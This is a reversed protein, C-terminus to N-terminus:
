TEDPFDEANSWTMTTMNLIETKATCETKDCIQANTEKGICCGVTLARGKYNGLGYTFRHSYLTSDALKIYTSGDYSLYFSGKSSRFSVM